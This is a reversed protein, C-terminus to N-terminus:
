YSLENRTMETGKLILEKAQESRMCSKGPFQMEGEKKENGGNRQMAVSQLNDM